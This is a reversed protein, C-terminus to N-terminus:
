RPSVHGAANDRWLVIPVIIVLGIFMGLAAWFWLRRPVRSLQQPLNDVVLVSPTQQLEKSRADEMDSAAKMYLSQAIQVDRELGQLTVNSQSYRAVGRNSAM